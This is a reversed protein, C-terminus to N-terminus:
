MHMIAIAQNSQQCCARHQFSCNVKTGTSRLPPAQEDPLVLLYVQLHRSMAHGQMIQCLCDRRLDFLVHKSKGETHNSRCVGLTLYTQSPRIIRLLLTQLTHNCLPYEHPPTHLTHMYTNLTLLTHLRKRHCPRMMTHM